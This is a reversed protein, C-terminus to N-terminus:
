RALWAEAAAKQDRDFAKIELGPYFLGELESAKQLWAKDTLVAIRDFKKTLKLLEALRSFEVKLAGLSPLHFDVIEYLMTGNVIGESQRILDDLATQMEDANLKGSLAIDLRNPGNREVKFM